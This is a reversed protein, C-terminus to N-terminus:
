QKPTIWLGISILTYMILNLCTHLSWINIRWEINMFVLIDNLAFVLASASFYILLGSTIFIVGRLAMFQITYDSVLQIFWYMSFAALITAELTLSYTHFTTWGSISSFYIINSICFGISVAIYLLKDLYKKSIEYLYFLILNFEVLCFINIVHLNNKGANWYLYSIAHFALSIMLYLSIIKGARALRNYRWISIIVPVILLWGAYKFFLDIM